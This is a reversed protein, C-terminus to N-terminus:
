LQEEVDTGMGRAAVSSGGDAGGVACGLGEPLGYAADHPANPLGDEWAAEGDILGWWSDYTPKPLGGIRDWETAEGDVKIPVGSKTQSEV